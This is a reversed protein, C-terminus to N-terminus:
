SDSEDAAHHDHTSRRRCQSYAYGHHEPRQGRQQEGGGPIHFRQGSNDNCPDHLEIGNRWLHKHREEEM